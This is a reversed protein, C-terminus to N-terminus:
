AESAKSFTEFDSDIDALTKYTDALEWLDEIYEPFYKRHSFRKRAYAEIIRAWAMDSEVDEPEDTLLDVFLRM